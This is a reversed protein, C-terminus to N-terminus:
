FVVKEVPFVPGCDCIKAYKWDTSDGDAIKTVCGMCAGGGCAMHEELSLYGIGKQLVPHQKVANLMPKPGCSLYLFPLASSDHSTHNTFKYEEDAFYDTVVGREGYSGDVTYISVNAYQKYEEELIVQGRGAFGLVAHVPIGKDHWAKAAFLLPPVGIGGGIVYVARFDGSTPFTGGGLPAIMDLTQGPQASALLRTGAGHRRFVFRVTGQLRDVACISIPRRLLPDISDRVRIHAFQGPLAIEAIEASLVTMDFIDEAIQKNDIIEAMARM